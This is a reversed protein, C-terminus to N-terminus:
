QISELYQRGDDTVLLLKNIINAQSPIIRQKEGAIVDVAGQYLVRLKMLVCDTDNKNYQEGARNRLEYQHLYYSQNLQDIIKTAYGSSLSSTTLSYVYQIDGNANKGQFTSVTQNDSVSLVQLHAPLEINDLNQDDIDTPLFFRNIKHYSVTLYIRLYGNFSQTSFAQAFIGNKSLLDLVMQYQDEAVYGFIQAFEHSSSNDYLNGMSIVYPQLLKLASDRVSTSQERAPSFGLTSTETFRSDDRDHHDFWQIIRQPDFMKIASLSLKLNGAKIEGILDKVDSSSALSVNDSPDDIMDINAAFDAAALQRTFRPNFLPVLLQENQHHEDPLVSQYNYVFKSGLYINDILQNECLDALIRGAILSDKPSLQAVTLQNQQHQVLNMILYKLQTSQQDNSPYFNYFGSLGCYWEDGKNYRDGAARQNLLQNFLQDLISTNVTVLSTMDAKASPSKVSQHTYQDIIEQINLMQEYRNSSDSQKTFLTHQYSWGGPETSRTVDHRLQVLVSVASTQIDTFVIVPSWSNVETMLQDFRTAFDPLTKARDIETASRISDFYKASPMTQKNQQDIITMHTDNILTEFVPIRDDVLKHNAVLKKLVFLRAYCAPVLLETVRVNPSVVNELLKSQLSVQNYEDLIDYHGSQLKPLVVRNFQTETLQSLM